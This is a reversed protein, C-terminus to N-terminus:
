YREMELHLRKLRDFRLQAIELDRGKINIWVSSM